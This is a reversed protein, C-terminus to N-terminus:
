TQECPLGEQVWASVGGTVNFAKDLLGNIVLYQSIQQSRIGHACMFAVRKGRHEPLNEPDFQSLPMHVAGPIRALALEPDERVDILIATEETLWTQVESPECEIVNPM